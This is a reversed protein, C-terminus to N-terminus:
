IGGERENILDNLFELRVSYFKFLSQPMPETMMSEIYNRELKIQRLSKFRYDVLSGPM